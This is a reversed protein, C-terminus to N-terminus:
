VIEKHSQLHFIYTLLERSGEPYLHIWSAWINGHVLGCVEGSLATNKRDEVQWLPTYEQVEQMDERVRGYHFEHGRGQLHPQAQLRVHRYGLAAKQQGIYASCPLLACLPYNKGEFELGQMLYIYGGCEAYIRGSFDYRAQKEAFDRISQLMSVNSALQQAYLEPYGGPFYLATCGQPVAGDELPSFFVCEAGLEQLVAPMDAYLFAFAADFAIGIRAKQPINEQLVHELPEHVLAEQDFVNSSLQPSSFTYTTTALLADINLYEEAFAALACRKEGTWFVEHAMHLGLHRSPLAFRIDKPLYGLVPLSEAFVDYFAEELLNKHQTSGVHTCIIGAFSLQPQTRVFGAALAAASQAMGQVNLVLVIPLQLFHACHASSGLGGMGSAGDFLGMVGEALVVDPLVGDPRPSSLMRAYARGMGEEGGMWADLNYSPANTFLTHHSPDIFDPGVKCAQLVLGREQLAALLALSVTTKGAGSHTGAVLFAHKLM